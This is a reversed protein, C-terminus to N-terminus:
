GADLSEGVVPPGLGRRYDRSESVLLRSSGDFKKDAGAPEVSAEDDLTDSVGDVVGLEDVARSHDHESANSVVGVTLEDGSGRGGVHVDHHGVHRGVGWCARAASASITM